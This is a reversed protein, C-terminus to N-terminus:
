LRDLIVRHILAAHALHCRQKRGLQINYVSQSRVPFIRFDLLLSDLIRNQQPHVHACSVLRQFPVSLVSSKADFAWRLKVHALKICMSWEGKRRGGGDVELFGAIQTEKRGNGGRM